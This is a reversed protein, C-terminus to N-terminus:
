FFKNITAKYVPLNAFSTSAAAKAAQTVAKKERAVATAEAAVAQQTAATSCTEEEM